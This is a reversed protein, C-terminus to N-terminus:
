RGFPFKFPLSEAIKGPDVGKLADGLQQAGGSLTAGLDAAGKGVADGLDSAGKGIAAGVEQAGALAKGGLDAAGEFVKGGADAVGAAVEGAFEGVVKDWSQAREIARSEMELNLCTAFRGTLAMLGELKEIDQDAKLPHLLKDGRATESAKELSARFQDVCGRVRQLREKRAEVIASRHEDVVEPAEALARELEIVSLRDRTKIAQAAVAFWAM